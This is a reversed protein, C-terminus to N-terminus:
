KINVTVDLAGAVQHWWGAWLVVLLIGWGLSWLWGDKLSEWGAFAVATFHLGVYWVTVYLLFGTVVLWGIIAFAM